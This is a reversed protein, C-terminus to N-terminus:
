PNVWEESNPDPRLTQLRHRIAPISWAVAALGLLVAALVLGINIPQAPAPAMGSPDYQMVNSLPKIGYGGVLLVRGDGLLTATHGSRGIPPGGMSWTNRAPDYLEPLPQVDGGVLLVRRDGLLTVTDGTGVQKISAVPTWRNSTSHYIEASTLQIVTSNQGQSVGGVVLVDGNALRVASHQARGSTM